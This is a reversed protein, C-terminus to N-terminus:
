NGVGFFAIFRGAIVIGFWLAISSFGAILAGIPMVRRNEWEPARRNATLHFVSANIGALVIMVIKVRFPGNDYVKVAESSFLFFGTVLMVSFGTWAWPLTKSTVVWVPIKKLAVGLLRLDLITTSGVLLVIGMLHVAELAPFLVPSGSITMAWSQQELWHCWGLIDFM